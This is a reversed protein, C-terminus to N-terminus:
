GPRVLGHAREAAGPRLARWLVRAPNVPGPLAVRGPAVVEFGLREFFPADGVLLILGHGAEGAAECASLVLRSGLGRGRWDDRVAFPGLLLAPAAGIRVPWLRVCGVAEGQSWAILSLDLVPSNTERLREAAKALRGPGFAGEILAEVRAGDSRREPALEPHSQPDALPAPAPSTIM